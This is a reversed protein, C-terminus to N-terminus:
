ISSIDGLLEDESESRGANLKDDKIKKNKTSYEVRGKSAHFTGFHKLLINNMTNYEGKEGKSIEDRVYKFQSYFIEEVVKYSLGFKNAVDRIINRIETQTINM